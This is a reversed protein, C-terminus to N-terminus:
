YKNQLMVCFNWTDLVVDELTTVTRIEHRGPPVDSWDIWGGVNDGNHLDVVNSVDFGIVSLLVVGQEDDSMILIQKREDQCYFEFHLDNSGDGGSFSFITVLVSDLYEVTYNELKFDSEYQEEDCESIVYTEREFYPSM